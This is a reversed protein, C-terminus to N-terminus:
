QAPDLEGQPDWPQGGWMDAGAPGAQVLLSTILQDPFRQNYVSAWTIEWPQLTKPIRQETGTANSFPGPDILGRTVTHILLHIRGNDYEYLPVGNGEGFEAIQVLEATSELNFKLAYAHQMDYHLMGRDDISDVALSYQNLAWQFLRHDQAAIAISAATMAVSLGHHNRIGCGNPGCHSKEYFARERHVIEEMWTTMIHTQDPTEVGADRVKLYAIAASRLAMNQEQWADKDAMYGAMARHAAAESLLMIVCQAAARSGTRRFADAAAVTRRTLDHLSADSESYISQKVDPSLNKQSSTITIDPAILIPPGCDYPEATIAVPTADWPSHLPSPAMASAPPAPTTHACGLAAVLLVLTLFRPAAYV